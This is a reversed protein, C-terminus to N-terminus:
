PLSLAVVKGSSGQNTAAYIARGRGLALASVEWSGADFSWKKAGAPSLALVKGIYTNDNTDSNIEDVTGAYIVGDRGVVLTSVKEADFSWKEAGAPSLAIVKCKDARSNGTNTYITGDRGIAFDWIWGRVDFSWKRAGEPSLAIVKGNNAADVTGIYIAGNSGVALRRVSSGADFSWQEAGAPSLAVVKSTDSGHEAVAYLAGGRGVALASSTCDGCDFSWKQAGAPSLALVKGGLVGAEAYIAGDSAVALSFVPKGADFSWKQAGGPSLALVKGGLNGVYIDGDGGVALASVRDRENGPDFSWKQAGDSSVALVKSLSSVYITGDPGVMLSDLDNKVADFSWKMKPTRYGHRSSVVKTTAAAEAEVKAPPEPAVYAPQTDGPESCAQLALTGLLMSAVILPLVWSRM